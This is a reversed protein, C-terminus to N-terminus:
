NINVTKMFVGLEFVNVTLDNEAQICSFEGLDAGDRVAKELCKTLTKVDSYGLNVGQGALPHIRHAADGILAVRTGVYSHTHGFGLPFAARTDSQLSLVRPPVPPKSPETGCIGNLICDVLDIANNTLANQSTGTT